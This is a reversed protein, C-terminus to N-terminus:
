VTIRERVEARRAETRETTRYAVCSTFWPEYRTDLSRLPQERRLAPRPGYRSTTPPRLRDRRTAFGDIADGGSTAFILTLFGTTSSSPSSIVRIRQAKM